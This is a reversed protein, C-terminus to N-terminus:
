SGRAADKADIINAKGTVKKLLNAVDQAGRKQWWSWAIGAFIMGAGIFDSLESSQLYGGTVLAGGITTLAHRAGLGLLTPMEVSNDM